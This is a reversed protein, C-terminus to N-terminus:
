QYVWVGGWGIGFPTSISLFATNKTSIAYACFGRKVLLAPPRIKPEPIFAMVAGRRSARGRRFNGRWFYIKGKEFCLSTYNWIKKAIDVAFLIILLQWYFFFYNELFQSKILLKVHALPIFSGAASHRAVQMLYHKGTIQFNGSGLIM